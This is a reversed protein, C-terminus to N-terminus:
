SSLRLCIGTRVSMAVTVDAPCLIGEPKLQEELVADSLSYPTFSIVPHLIPCRAEGM